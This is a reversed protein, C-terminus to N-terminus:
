ACDAHLGGEIETVIGHTLCWSISRSTETQMEEAIVAPDAGSNSAIISAIESDIAELESAMARHAAATWRGDPQGQFAARHLLISVTDASAIRRECAMAVLLASSDCRGLIKAVKRPASHLNRIAMYCSMSAFFDGGNSNIFVEITDSGQDRTVQGYIRDAMADDIEGMVDIRLVNDM